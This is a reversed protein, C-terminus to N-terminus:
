IGASATLSVAPFLAARAVGIQANAAAALRETTAIDPRRELLESPLGTPIVPPAATTVAPPITVDAPPRGILIAIAHEFEARQTGLDIAQARTSELLTRAQAVDVGSVIGQNYRNTTLQLAQEYAAVNEDLLRKEEDLGRLQFYDLALEAHASLRATEVEAAT